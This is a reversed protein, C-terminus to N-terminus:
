LRKGFSLVHDEVYGISKYFDIVQTNSTRVQLNIKPCGLKELREQAAQMIQGGLGLRRHDPHVGLYNIWGRRGEYGAMVTAVIEGDLEGVLFLEPQFALKKAVAAVPDNPPKILHCADWLAIVQEQDKKDFPRVILKKDTKKM